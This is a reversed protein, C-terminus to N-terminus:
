LTIGDIIYSFFAIDLIAKGTHIMQKPSITKTFLSAGKLVYRTYTIPYSINRHM